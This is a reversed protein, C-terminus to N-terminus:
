FKKIGWQSIIAFDGLSKQMKCIRTLTKKVSTIMIESISLHLVFIYHQTFNCPCNCCCFFFCSPLSISHIFCNMKQCRGTKSYPVQGSPKYCTVKFSLSKYLDNPEEGTMKLFVSQCVLMAKYMLLSSSVSADYKRKHLLGLWALGPQKTNKLFEKM